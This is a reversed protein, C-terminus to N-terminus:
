RRLKDVLKAFEKADHSKNSKVVKKESLGSCKPCKDQIGELTWGKGKALKQLETNRDSFDIWRIKSGPGIDGCIDCSIGVFKAM